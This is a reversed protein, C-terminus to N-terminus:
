LYADQALKLFHAPGCGVDLIAGRDWYRRIHAIYARFLPLRSMYEM